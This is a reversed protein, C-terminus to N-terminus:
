GEDKLAEQPPAGLNLLGELVRWRRPSLVYSYFRSPLFRTEYIM